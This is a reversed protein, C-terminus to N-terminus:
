RRIKGSSEKRKKSGTKMNKKKNGKEQENELKEPLEFIHSMTVIM